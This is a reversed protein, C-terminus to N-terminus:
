ESEFKFLVLYSVGERVHLSKNTNRSIKHFRSCVCHRDIYSLFLLLVIHYAHSVFLPRDSLFILCAFLKMDYEKWSVNIYRLIFSLEDPYESKVTCCRHMRTFNWSMMYYWLLAIDEGKQLKNDEKGHNFIFILTSIYIFVIVDNLFDDAQNCM